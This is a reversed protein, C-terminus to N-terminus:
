HVVVIRNRGDNKAIYLAEDARKLTAEIREGPLYMSVGQSVTIREGDPLEPFHLSAVCAKIREATRQAAELTSEPLIVIFEEGGFRGLFDGQRMIKRLENSIRCLIADGTDHGWTDNIRKFHDVDLMSVCLEHDNASRREFRAVEQSLQNMLSRRNPLQTLPDRAALEALQTNKERLTNRISSIYSGLYAVTVLVSAYTFVIILEIRWDMRAPAFLHLATLLALYSTLIFASVALMSRRSLAFSGFMLGSTATLLFATRAQPDAVFYMLMVGPWIPAVIQAATMSPDKFQLNLNTKILLLFGLNITLIMLFYVAAPLEPIMGFLYLGVVVLWTSFQAGLGWTMRQLRLRQIKAISDVAEQQVM